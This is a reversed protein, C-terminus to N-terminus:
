PKVVENRLTGIVPSRVEVIDGPHVFLEPRSKGDDGITSSDMATGKPTGSSIMDGVNMTMDRSVYAGIEAFSYIMHATNGSQRLEDNLATEFDVNAFNTIERVVIWPGLSSSSDFNKTYGFDRQANGYDRVGWDNQLTYGWILDEFQAEPIDRARRGFVVVVEGEYDFRETRAPYRVPAGTGVINPTQVVFHMLGQGRMMATVEELTPDEGFRNRRSNQVHDAFNAMGMVMRSGPSAIPPHLTTRDLPAALSEGGLGTRETAGNALHDLAAEVGDLAGDGEAIFSALDSPVTAAAWAGPRALNRVEAVYKAFALNADVVEDTGDPSTIVVGVRRHPGYVAIRM